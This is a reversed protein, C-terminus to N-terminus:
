TTRALTRIATEIQSERAASDDAVHAVGWRELHYRSLVSVADPRKGSDRLAAQAWMSSRLRRRAEDLADSRELENELWGMFEARLTNPQGIGLNTDTVPIGRKRWLKILDPRSFPLSRPITPPQLTLVDEYISIALPHPDRDGFLRALAAPMPVPGSSPEDRKM